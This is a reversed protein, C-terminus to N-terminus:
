SRRPPLSLAQRGSRTSDHRALFWGGALLVVAGAVVLPPLHAFPDDSIGVASRWDPFRSQIVAFGNHVAHAIIAPWISRSQWCLWGLVLGVVFTTAFKLLFFHFIGFAAASMLLIPWKRFSQRLGSMLFGRFLLEESIAPIVAVVLLLVWLRESTLVQQFSEELENLGDPAPLIGQQLVFVEHAVVWMTFGALLGALMYRLRPLPIQVSLTNRWDIRWYWLLAFPIAVFFVPMLIASHRLLAGLDHDNVRQLSSQLYFWIPFLVATYLSAVALSPRPSPRVQRRSLLLRISIADAFAVAERGYIQAAVAIAASAYLCTSLLVWAFAGPSLVAGSLLERTLLVMNGVPMVLMVGELRAGPTSAAIGPVMVAIIVPTVYNQAEKFTRACCCIAILIASMLISFPILSLLVVPIAGFPFGAADSRPDIGMISGLGGFYVTASVSALNMAAGLLAITTITLFKGAILEIRPVPCVMLTELTGREHEGATLDIAPYIASTITMLVLVLPVILGLLSGYSSVRTESVVLPDITRRDVNLLALRQYIRSEAVRDLADHLRDAASRSRLDEPQYLIRIPVQVTLSSDDSLSDDIVIGCHIQRTLIADQFEGVVQVELKDALPESGASPSLSEQVMATGSLEKEDAPVDDQALREEEVRSELYRREEILLQTLRTRDDDTVVGVIITEQAVKGTQVSVAQISFLMLLPYLVVPVVITALLTRRDRLIDVLEKLYITKTRSIMM